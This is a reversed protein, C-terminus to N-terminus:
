DEFEKFMMIFINIMALAALFIAKEAMLKVAFYGIATGAIFVLICVYYYLGKEIASRDGTKIGRYMNQTGTKLNGTCMTTAIATGRIKPFTAFQIGSIMSIIANAVRNMEQPLFGVVIFAFIEFLVLIQRWHIMNIREKRYKIIECVAVGVAFSIIPILYNVAEFFKGECVKLAMLIINGTEANAFVKGRNIYSYADMFGGSLALFIGVAISESIQRNKM